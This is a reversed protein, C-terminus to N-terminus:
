LVGLVLVTNDTLLTEIFSPSPLLFTLTSLFSPPLEMNMILPRAPLETTASDLITAMLWVHSSRAQRPQDLGLHTTCLPNWLTLVFILSIDNITKHQNWASIINQFYQTLYFLNNLNFFNQTHICIKYIQVCYVWLLLWPTHTKKKKVKQSLQLSM